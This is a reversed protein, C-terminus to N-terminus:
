GGGKGGRDMRVENKHCSSSMPSRSVYMSCLWTMMIKPELPYKLDFLGHIGNM